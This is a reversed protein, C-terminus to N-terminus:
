LYLHLKIDVGSHWRKRTQGLALLYAQECVNLIAYAVKPKRQLTRLLWRKIHPATIADGVLEAFLCLTSKPTPEFIVQQQLWLTGLLGLIDNYTGYMENVVIITTIFTLNQAVEGMLMANDRVNNESPLDIVNGAGGDQPPISWAISAGNKVRAVEGISSLPGVCYHAQVYCAAMYNPLGNETPM